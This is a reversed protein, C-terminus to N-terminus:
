THVLVPRALSKPAPEFIDTRFLYLYVYLSTYAWLLRILRYMQDSTTRAPIYLVFM